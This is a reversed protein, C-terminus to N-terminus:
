TSIIRDVEANEADTLKWTLASIELQDTNSAGATRALLSSERSM